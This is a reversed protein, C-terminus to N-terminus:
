AIEQHQFGRYEGILGAVIQWHWLAEYQEARVFYTEYSENSLWRGMFRMPGKKFSILFSHIRDGLGM